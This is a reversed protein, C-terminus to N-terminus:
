IKSRYRFFTLKEKALFAESASPVFL